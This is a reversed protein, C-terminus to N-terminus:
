LINELNLRLERKRKIVESFEAKFALVGALSDIVRVDTGLKRLKMHTLSQALTPKKGPAKLEVFMTIGEPLCILRDPFSTNFSSSFKLAIGGLSRVVECLKQEVKKELIAM